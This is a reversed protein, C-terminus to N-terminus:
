NVVLNPSIYAHETCQTCTCTYTHITHLCARLYGIVTISYHKNTVRSVRVGIPPLTIVCPEDHKSPQNIGLNFILYNYHATKRKSPQLNGVGFWGNNGLVRRPPWVGPLHDVLHLSIGNWIKRVHIKSTSFQLQHWIPVCVRKHHPESCFWKGKRCLAIHTIHTQMGEYVRARLQYEQEYGTKHSLKKFTILARPM